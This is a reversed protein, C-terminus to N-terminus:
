LTLALINWSLFKYNIQYAIIQGLHNQTIKVQSVWLLDNLPILESIDLYLSERQIELKVVPNKFVYFYLKYIRFNLLLNQVLDFDEFEPLIQNDNQWGQLVKYSATYYKGHTSTVVGWNTHLQNIPFVQYSRATSYPENVTGRIALKVGICYVIFLLLCTFASISIKRQDVRNVRKLFGLFVFLASVPLYGPKILALSFGDSIIPYIFPIRDTSLICFLSYIMLSLMPSYYRIARIRDRFTVWNFIVICSWFLGQYIFSQFFVPQSLIIPKASLFRYIYDGLPSLAGLYTIVKFRTSVKVKPKFFEFAFYITFVTIIVNM